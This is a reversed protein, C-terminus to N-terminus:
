ILDAVEPLTWKHQPHMGRLEAVIKEVTEREAQERHAALTSLLLEAHPEITGNFANRARETLYARLTARDADTVEAM